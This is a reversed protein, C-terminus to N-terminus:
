ALIRRSLFLCDRCVASSEKAILANREVTGGVVKAAVHLVTEFSVQHGSSIESASIGCFLCRCPPSGDITVVVFGDRQEIAARMCDGCM